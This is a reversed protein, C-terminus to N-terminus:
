QGYPQGPELGPKPVVSSDVTKIFDGDLGNKKQHNIEPTGRVEDGDYEKILEGNKGLYQM